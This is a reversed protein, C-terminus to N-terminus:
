ATEKVMRIFEEGRVEFNKFQDMSACAPALLVIDGDKADARAADLASKMDPVGATKEAPSASMIQGADRGFCYMKEVAGCSLLDGVPAFDQGKGLGGALLYIHAEPFVDRLGSVAALTSGVNTAKSDNYFSVGNIRAVFECRHRLGPFTRLVELQAKEPIGAFDALAMAALANSINHRGVIRMESAKLVDRGKKMLIYEAGDKRVGYDESSETGFTIDPKRPSVGTEKAYYDPFSRKDERNAAIHEANRFIRHKAMGYKELSGEYRDLHDETVNLCVAGVAKLSSVTELEFSSLELVALDPEDKLLSLVPVGINAGMETKIGAAKGMLGLLTTVTSKGNSGTVALVKSRTERAFLEVDGAIDAGAAAAAKMAPNYLPIGPGPVVMSATAFLEPQFEGGIFRVNEPLKARLPPNERTDCVIPVIGKSLLYNVAELNSLGLGAVIVPGKGSAKGACECKVSAM